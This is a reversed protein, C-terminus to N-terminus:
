AMFQMLFQPITLQFGCGLACQATTTCVGPNNMLIPRGAAPYTMTCLCDGNATCSATGRVHRGTCAVSTSGTVQSAAPNDWTAGAKCGAGLSYEGSDGNWTVTQTSSLVCLKAADAEGGTSFALMAIAILKKM